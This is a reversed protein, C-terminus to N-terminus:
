VLLHYQHGYQWAAYPKLTRMVPFSIYKAYCIGYHSSIRNHLSKYSRNINQSSSTFNQIQDIKVETSHPKTQKLVKRRQRRAINYLSALKIARINQKVLQYEWDKRDNQQFHIRSTHLFKSIFSPAM